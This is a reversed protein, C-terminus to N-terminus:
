ASAGELTEYGKAIFLVLDEIFYKQQIDCKQYSKQGSFFETITSPQVIKRKKTKQRAADLEKLMTLSAKYREFELSHENVVHNKMSTLGHLPNYQLVGKRQRTASRSSSSSTANTPHCITCKMVQIAKVDVEVGPEKLKFFVWVLSQRHYPAWFHRNSTLAPLLVQWAAEFKSTAENSM